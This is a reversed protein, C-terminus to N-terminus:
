VDRECGFLSYDFTCSHLLAQLVLTDLTIHCINVNNSPYIRAFSVCGCACCVRGGWLPQAHRYASPHPFPFILHLFDNASIHVSIRASGASHDSMKSQWKSQTYAYRTRCAGKGGPGAKSPHERRETQQGSQVQRPESPLHSRVRASPPSLAPPLLTKKLRQM